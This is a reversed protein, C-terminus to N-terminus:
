NEVSYFQDRFQMWATQFDVFNDKTIVLSNGNEFDMRTPTFSDGLLNFKYAIAMLGNQDEGTASCMVGGFDFGTVKQQRLAIKAQKEADIESKHQQYIQEVQEVTNIGEIAGEEVDDGVIVYSNKLVKIWGKEKLTNIKEHINM